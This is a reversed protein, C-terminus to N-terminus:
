LHPPSKELHSNPPVGPVCLAAEGLGRGRGVRSHEDAGDSCWRVQAQLSRWFPWLSRCAPPYTSSHLIWYQVVSPNFLPLVLIRWLVGTMLSAWPYICNNETKKRDKIVWNKVRMLM